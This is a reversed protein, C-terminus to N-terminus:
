AKDEDYREGRRPISRIVRKVKKLSGKKCTVSRTRESGDGWPCKAFYM